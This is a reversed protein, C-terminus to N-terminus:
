LAGGMAHLSSAAPVVFLTVFVMVATLMILLQSTHLPLGGERYHCREDIGSVPESPLM